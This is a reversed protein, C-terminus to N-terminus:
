LDGICTYAYVLGSLCRVIAAPESGSTWLASCEVLIYSMTVTSCTCFIYMHLVYTPIMCMASNCQVKLWLLPLPVKRTYDMSDITELLDATTPLLAVSTVLSYMLWVFQCVAVDTIHFQVTCYLICWFFTSFASSSTFYSM